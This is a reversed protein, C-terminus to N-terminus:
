RRTGALEPNSAARRTRPERSPATPNGETGVFTVYDQELDELPQGFFAAFAPDFPAGGGIREWVRSLRTVVGPFGKAPRTRLYEVFFVAVSMWRFVNGARAARLGAGDRFGRLADAGRAGTLEGIM